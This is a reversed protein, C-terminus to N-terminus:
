FRGMMGRHLRSNSKDEFNVILNFDGAVVWPGAHLDRVDRPELLFNPNDVERHPGYVGTLWWCGDPSNIQATLTHETYHPNTLVVDCARWALIIGGRTGAAPLFFFNNAFEQGICQAVIGATVVQLKSEQFVASRKALSNLGCANWVLKKSNASSM